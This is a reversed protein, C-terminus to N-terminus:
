AFGVSNACCIKNSNKPCDYNLRTNSCDASSVCQGGNQGCSNVATSFRSTSNILFYVSVVVVGLVLAAIVMTSLTLEVSKKSKM